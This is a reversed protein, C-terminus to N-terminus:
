ILAGMSFGTAYHASMPRAETANCWAWAYLGILLVRLVVNAVVFGASRGELAGGFNVALAAWALMVVRFPTDDTYFQDGYYAFSMWVWCVPVLLLAFELFGGLTLHDHLFVTLAVIAVVFVLNFFLELWTARRERAQGLRLRTASWSPRRV